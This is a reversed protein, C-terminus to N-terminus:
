GTSRKMGDPRLHVPPFSVGGEMERNVVLAAESFLEALLRVANTQATIRITGNMIREDVLTPARRM